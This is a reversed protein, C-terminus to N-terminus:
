LGAAPWPAPLREGERRAQPVPCVLFYPLSACFKGTTSHVFRHMLNGCEEDSLKLGLRRMAQIFEPLSIRGSGDTDLQKFVSEIDHIKKRMARALAAQKQPSVTPTMPRSMVSLLSQGPPSIFAGFHTQVQLPPCRM